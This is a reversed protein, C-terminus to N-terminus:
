GLPNNGRENHDEDNTGLSGRSELATRFSARASINWVGIVLVLSAAVILIAWYFSAWDVLVGYRPDGPLGARLSPLAFLVAAFLAYVWMPAAANFVVVWWTVAACSVAISWSILMFLIVWTIASWRRDLDMSATTSNEGVEATSAMSFDQLAAVISLDTPLPTADGGGVTAGVSIEGSYSDFPYRASQGALAVVVTMSEMVSDRPFVKVNPGSSDNILFTVQDTITNGSTLDGQPNFVIRLTLEALDPDLRLATAEVELRRDAELAAFPVVVREDSDSLGWWAACTAAIPGLIVLVLLVRRAARARHVPWPQVVLSELRPSMSRPRPRPPENPEAPEGPEGPEGSEGSETAM